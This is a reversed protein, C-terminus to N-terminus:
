VHEKENICIIDHFKENVDVFEQRELGVMLEPESDGKKGIFLLVKNKTNNWIRM